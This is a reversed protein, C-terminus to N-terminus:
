KYSIRSFTFSCPYVSSWHNGPFQTHLCTSAVYSCLFVRGSSMSSYLLVVSCFLCIQNYTHLFCFIFFASVMELVPCVLSLFILFVVPFIKLDAKQLVHFVRFNKIFPFVHIKSCGLSSYLVM